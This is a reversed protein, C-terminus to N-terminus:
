QKDKVFFPSNSPSVSIPAKDTKTATSAPLAPRVIALNLAYIKDTQDYILEYSLFSSLQSIIDGLSSNNAGINSRSQDNFPDTFVRVTQGSAASLSKAVLELLEVTPREAKPFSITKSMLANVAKVSGDAGLVSVPWVSLSGDDNQKAVYNGGLKSNAYASLVAQVLSYADKKESDFAVVLEGGKQAVVRKTGSTSSITVTTLESLNELAAEEFNIPTHVYDRLERFADALPRPGKSRIGDASVTQSFSLNAAALTFMACFAFIVSQRYRRNMYKFTNTM